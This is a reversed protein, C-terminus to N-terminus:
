LRLIEGGQKIGGRFLDEIVKGGLVTEKVIGEVHKPEVRGYWIGCGALPNEKGDAMRMGPPIYLIVNGAFKHGGIHSILGVKATEGPRRVEEEERLVKREEDERPGKVVVPGNRIGIDQKELLREFDLKLVPGIVGCRADRGGHGCILVLVDKVDQVGYLLAKAEEKRLLRDKHIPSLNDHAPNLKTPLLHGQVLAQVADFSVRPLFPVYKFSPFLYASSNQIEERGPVTSPFSSNTVSINHYPDAYTGGRGVLEKLDAALNDGSNEEEIKSSWDEQGTCILVQEAYPAMTGNLATKYDIPLRPPLEPMASCTCTANPCTPTTPFPPPRPPIAYHRRPRAVRLRWTSRAIPRLSMLLFSPLLYNLEHTTFIICAGKTM